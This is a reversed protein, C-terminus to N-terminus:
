LRVRTLGAPTAWHISYWGTFWLTAPKIELWPVHRPQPGPGWYPAHSPCGISTERGEKRGSKRFILLYIILFFGMSSFSTLALTVPSLYMVTKLLYTHSNTQCLLYLVIEFGSVTLFFYVPSNKIPLWFVKAGVFNLKPFTKKHKGLKKEATYCPLLHRPCSIFGYLAYIVLTSDLLIPIWQLAIAVAPPFAAHPLPCTTKWMVKFAWIWKTM